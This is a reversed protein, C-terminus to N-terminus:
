NSEADANPSSSLPYLSGSLPVGSAVFGAVVVVLADGVMGNGDILVIKTLEQNM